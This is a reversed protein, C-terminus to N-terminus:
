NNEIYLKYLFHAIGIYTIKISTEKKDEPNPFTELASIKNLKNIFGNITGRSVREGRLDELEEKLDELSKYQRTETLLSIENYTIKPKFFDEYSSFNSFFLRMFEFQKDTLTDFPIRTLEINSKIGAEVNGDYIFDAHIIRTNTICCAIYFWISMYRLGGSINVTVNDFVQFHQKLILHVLQSIPKQQEEFNFKRNKVILKRSRYYNLLKDLTEEAKKTGSLPKEETIFILKDNLEKDISYILKDPTHGVLVIQCSKNNM